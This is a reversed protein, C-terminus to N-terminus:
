PIEVNSSTAKLFLKHVIIGGLTKVSATNPQNRARSYLPPEPTQGYATPLWSESGTASLSSSLNVLSRHSFLWKLFVGLNSSTCLNRRWWMGSCCLSNWLTELPFLLCMKKKQKNKKLVKQRSLFTCKPKCLKTWFKTEAIPETIQLTGIRGLIFERWRILFSPCMLDDKQDMASALKQIRATTHTLKGRQLFHGLSPLKLWLSHQHVTWWPSFTM